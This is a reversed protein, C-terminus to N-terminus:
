PSPPPEGGDAPDEKFVGADPFDPRQSVTGSLPVTVTIAPERASAVVLRGSYIGCTEAEFHVAVALAKDPELVVYDLPSGPADLGFPNPAPGCSALDTHSDLFVRFNLAEIAVNARNVLAVGVTRREFLGADGFEVSAPSAELADPGAAGCSFASTAFLAHLITRSM